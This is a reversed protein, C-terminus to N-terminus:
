LNQGIETEGTTAGPPIKPRSGRLGEASLAECNSRLIDADNAEMQALHRQAQEAYPSGHHVFLKFAPEVLEKARCLNGLSDHAVGLNYVTIAVEPHEKGYHQEKIRLARELLDKQQSYNGLSGHANGLSSM